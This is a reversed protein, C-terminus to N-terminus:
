IKARRQKKEKKKTVLLVGYLTGKLVYSFFLIALPSALLKLYKKM